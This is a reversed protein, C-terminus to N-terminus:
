TASALCGLYVTTAVAICGEAFPGFFACAALARQYIEWCESVSPVQRPNGVENKQYNLQTTESQIETINTDTLYYYNDWNDTVSVEYSIEPVKEIQLLEQKNANNITTLGLLPIILKTIKM